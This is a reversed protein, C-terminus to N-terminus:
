TTSPQLLGLVREVIERLQTVSCTRLDIGPYVKARALSGSTSSQPHVRAGAQEIVDRIQDDLGQHRGLDTEGITFFLYSDSQKAVRSTRYAPALPRRSSLRDWGKRTVRDFHHDLLQRQTAFPEGSQAVPSAADATRGSGGFEVVELNDAPAPASADGVLIRLADVIEVDKWFRTLHDGGLVRVQGFGFSATRPEAKSIPGDCYREIHRVADRGHVLLGHPRIAELLFDFVDTSRFGPPLDSYKASAVPHLNTELCRVGAVSRLASDTRRRTASPVGDDRRSLYEEYWSAKDFGSEASWFPWFPVDTAPNLGVVFIRCSLPDGECVFPRVRPDESTLQRLRRDFLSLDM